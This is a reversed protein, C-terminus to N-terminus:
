MFGNLFDEQRAYSSSRLSIAGIGANSARNIGALFGICKGRLANAESVGGTQYERGAASQVFIRNKFLKM